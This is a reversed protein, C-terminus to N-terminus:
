RWLLDVDAVGESLCHILFLMLKDEYTLPWFHVVGESLYTLHPLWMLKAEYLILLDVVRESLYYASYPIVDVYKLLSWVIRWGRHCIHQIQYYCWSLKMLSSSSWSSSSSLSWSWPDCICRCTSLGGVHCKLFVCGKRLEPASCRWPQVSCTINRHDTM